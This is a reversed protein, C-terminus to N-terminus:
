KGESQIAKTLWLPDGSVLHGQTLLFFMAEPTAPEGREDFHHRRNWGFVEQTLKATADTM